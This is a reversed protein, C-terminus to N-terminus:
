ICIHFVFSYNSNIETIFFINNNNNYENKLLSKISLFYNLLVIKKYVNLLRLYTSAYKFQITYHNYIFHITNQLSYAGFM